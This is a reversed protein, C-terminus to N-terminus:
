LTFATLEASDTLNVRTARCPKTWGEKKKTPREWRALRRLLPLFRLSPARLSPCPSEWRRRRRNGALSPFFIGQELVGM